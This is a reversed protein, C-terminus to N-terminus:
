VITVSSVREVKAEAQAEDVEVVLATAGGGVGVLLPRRPVIKAEAVGGCREDRSWRATGPGVIRVGDV